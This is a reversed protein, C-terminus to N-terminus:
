RYEITINTDNTDSFQAAIGAGLSYSLTQAGISLRAFPSSKKNFERVSITQTSLINSIRKKVDDETGIGDVLGKELADRGLFIKAETNKVASVPMNRGEAVTKVFDEYHTDILNQIYEREDQEIERMPTGADKYDGATFQEYNVGLKGALESYNTRSGIVGISGVMSGNRCVIEDCASAILYGGSACVDTAHGIVPGDFEEIALKIDESPVIEGGPTNLRVILADIDSDDTATKIQDVIEDATTRKKRGLKPPADRQIPGKVEILGVNHNDPTVNIADWTLKGGVFAFSFITAIAVMSLDTNQTGYQFIAYTGGGAIATGALTLVIRLLKRFRTATTPTTVTQAENPTDWSLSVM